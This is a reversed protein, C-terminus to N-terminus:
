SRPWRSCKAPPARVVRAIGDDFITQSSNSQLSESQLFAFVFLRVSAPLCVDADNENGISNVFTAPCSDAGDWLSRWQEASGKDAFSAAVKASIKKDTSFERREM